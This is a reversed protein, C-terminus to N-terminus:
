WARDPTGLWTELVWCCVSGKGSPSWVSPARVSLTFGDFSPVLPCLQQQSLSLMINYLKALTAQQDAAAHDLLCLSSLHLWAALLVAWRALRCCCSHM